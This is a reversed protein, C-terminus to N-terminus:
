NIQAEEDLEFSILLRDADLSVARKFFVSVRGGASGLLAAM